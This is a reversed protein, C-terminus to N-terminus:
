ERETKGTARLRTATAKLEVGAGPWRRDDTKTGEACGWERRVRQPDANDIGLGRQSAAKGAMVQLLRLQRCARFCRPVPPPRLDFICRQALQPHHRKAELAAFVRGTSEKTERDCPRQFHPLRRARSPDM